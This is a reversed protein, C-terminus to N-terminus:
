RIEDSTTIESKFTTLKMHRIHRMKLQLGGANSEILTSFKRIQIRDDAYMDSFICLNGYIGSSM